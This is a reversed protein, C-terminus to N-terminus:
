KLALNIGDLQAEFISVLRDLDRKAGYTQCSGDISQNIIAESTATKIKFVCGGKKRQELSVVFDDQIWTSLKDGNVKKEIIKELEKIESFLYMFESGDANFEHMAPLGSGDETLHYVKTGDLRHEIAVECGDGDQTFVVSSGSNTKQFGLVQGSSDAITGTKNIKRNFIFKDEIEKTDLILNKTNSM